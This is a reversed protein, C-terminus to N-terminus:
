GKVCVVQRLTAVPEVLDRAHKMVLDIDKYARPAEDIVGPDKRCEVGATQAALDETTFRRKAESRSMRRGAGHPASQLATASGLGRVIYSRTGMSGPIIGLEGTGARIAGKRTVYVDEGFHQERAVYNHHCEVAKREATAEPILTRIADLTRRLMIRRNELAYRQAWTLAAVYDDFVPSGEVLYALDRNPATRGEREMEERALTTFHTGIANGLRRSGSHLMVWLRGGEEDVCLEIFHNGGGLSGLQRRWTGDLDRVRKGIDAHRDLLPQLEREFREVVDDAAVPQQHGLRGLPVANEIRERLPRLNDPLRDADCGLEVAAMGCGIDVGVAAPILARTTAVVSGITAGRGLHVDPMAAVHGTVIPLRALEGLQQSTNSDIDDTYVRVPVGGTRLTHDVPM